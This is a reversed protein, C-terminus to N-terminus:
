RTSCFELLAVPEPPLNKGHGAALPGVTQAETAPLARYLEQLRMPQTHSRDDSQSQVAGPQAHSRDGSQAQVAGAVQNARDLEQLRIPGTRSGNGSQSHIAGRAQNAAYPEQLRIPQTYSWLLVPVHQHIWNTHNTLLIVARESDQLFETM